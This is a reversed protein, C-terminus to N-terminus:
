KTGDSSEWNGKREVIMEVGAELCFGWVEYGGVVVEVGGLDVSEM